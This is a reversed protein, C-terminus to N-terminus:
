YMGYYLINLYYHKKEESTITRLSLKEQLRNIEGAYMIVVVSDSSNLYGRSFDRPHYYSGGRSLRIFILFVYLSFLFSAQKRSLNWKDSSARRYPISSSSQFFLWGRERETKRCKSHTSDHFSNFDALSISLCNRPLFKFCILLLLPVPQPRITKM